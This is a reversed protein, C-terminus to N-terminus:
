GGNRTCAFAAFAPESSTHYTIEFTTLLVGARLSARKELLGGRMPPPVTAVNSVPTLTHPDLLVLEVDDDPVCGACWYIHKGRGWLLAVQEGHHVLIPELEDVSDDPARLLPEDVVRGSADLRALRLVTYGGRPPDSDTDGRNGEPWAALYGDDLALLAMAGGVFAGSSMSMRSHSLQVPATDPLRVGSADFRALSVQTGEGDSRQYLVAFGTPTAVVEPTALSQEEIEQEAKVLSGTADVVLIRLPDSAGENAANYALVINGNPGRAARLSGAFPTGRTPLVRAPGRASGLADFAAFHIYGYTGREDSEFWLLAFGDDAQAVLTPSAVRGPDPVMISVPQGLKSSEDVTSVVFSNQSPLEPDFEMESEVRTVWTASATSTSDHGGYGWYPGYETRNTRVSCTHTLPATRALIPTTEDHGTDTSSSCGILLLCCSLVNRPLSM